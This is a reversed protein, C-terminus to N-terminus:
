SSQGLIGVIEAAMDAWTRQRLRDGFRAVRARYAAMGARWKRLRSVLETVNPPDGLVLDTLDTPYREAVGACSSVFAPLGCCLAEHVSLGYADYHTPSVVVDAAALITRVDKTYGLLRIRQGLGAALTRKRWFDL